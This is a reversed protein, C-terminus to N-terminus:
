HVLPNTRTGDVFAAIRARTTTLEQAVELGEELDRVPICHMNEEVLSSRMRSCLILSRSELVKLFYRARENGVEFGPEVQLLLDRESGSRSVGNLFGDPGVGMSCEAVLVIVGDRRTAQFGANLAEVASYLTGDSPFGGASVVAIDYRQGLAVNALSQAASVGLEWSETPSGSYVEAVTGKWDEVSNLIF